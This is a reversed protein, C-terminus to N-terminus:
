SRSARGPTEHRQAGGNVEPAIVRSFRVPDRVDEERLVQDAARVLAEGSAGLLEGLRRRACAAQLRLDIADFARAAAEYGVRARIPDGRHAALSARLM